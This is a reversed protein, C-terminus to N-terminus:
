KPPEPSAPPVEPSRVGLLEIEFRLTSNPGIERGAGRQGYALEPPIFLEWKSGEPMLKLAEKWGVIVSNLAFLGPKGHAYSSDFETGDLLTGRYHVEVLDSDTPKRGEGAKLVRYQLGSPLTVVGPKTKNEALFAEGAKKNEAGVEQAIRASRQMLEVQYASMIGRLEADSLLLKKGGSADKIGRIVQEMNLELKLRQFNRALDVGVAYSTKDRPSLVASEKAPAWVPLGVLFLLFVRHSM